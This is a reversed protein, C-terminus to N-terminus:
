EPGHSDGGSSEVGNAPIQEEEELLPFVDGTETFFTCRWDPFVGDKDTRESRMIQCTTDRANRVRQFYNACSACVMASGEPAPGYGVDEESFKRPRETMLQLYQELTVVLSELCDL